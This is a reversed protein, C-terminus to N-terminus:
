VGTAAARAAAMEDFALHDNEVDAIASFVEQIRRNTARQAAELYQTRARCERESSEAVAEAFTSPADSPDRLDDPKPEGALKSFVSCHEAEIASLRKFASALARDGEIRAVAAYFRANDRELGIATELDVREAETLQVINDREDFHDAEVMLHRAAGCFPCRSPADTGLYTEGCIRCRIMRM